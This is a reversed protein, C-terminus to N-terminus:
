ASTKFLTVGMSLMKSIGSCHSTAYEFFFSALNPSVIEYPGPYEKSSSVYIEGPKYLRATTHSEVNVIRYTGEKIHGAIACTAVLLVAIAKSLMTIM